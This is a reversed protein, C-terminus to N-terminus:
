GPARPPPDDAPGPLEHGQGPPCGTAPPPSNGGDIRDARHDDPARASHRYIVVGCVAIVFGVPVVVFAQLVWPAGDVIATVGAISGSIITDTGPILQRRDHETVGPLIGLAV